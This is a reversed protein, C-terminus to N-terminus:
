TVSFRYTGDTKDITLKRIVLLRTRLIYKSKLVEIDKILNENKFFACSLHADDALVMGIEAHCTM